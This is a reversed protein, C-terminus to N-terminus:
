PHLVFTCTTDATIAKVTVTAGVNGTYETICLSDIFLRLQITGASCAFTVYQVSSLSGLPTLAVQLSAPAPVSVDTPVFNRTSTANMLPAAACAGYSGVSNSTFVLGANASAILLLFVLSLRFLM